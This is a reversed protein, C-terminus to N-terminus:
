NSENMQYDFECLEPYLEEVIKTFEEYQKPTCLRRLVFGNDDLTNACPIDESDMGGCIVFSIGSIRGKVYKNYGFMHQKRLLTNFIKKEM